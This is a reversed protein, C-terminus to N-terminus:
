DTSELDSRTGIREYPFEYAININHYYGHSPHAMLAAHIEAPVESYRYIRNHPDEPYVKGFEVELIQTEPDYGISIINSSDVQQRNM